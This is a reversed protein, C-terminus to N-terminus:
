QQKEEKNKERTNRRKKTKIDTEPREDTNHVM